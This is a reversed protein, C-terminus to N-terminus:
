LLISKHSTLVILPMGNILFICTYKQFLIKQILTTDSQCNKRGKKKEEFMENM